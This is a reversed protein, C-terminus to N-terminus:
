PHQIKIEELWKELSEKDKSAKQIKVWKDNEYYTYIAAWYKYGSNNTQLSIGGNRKKNRCNESCTVWRLNNLNNNHKNRDIHDIHIKNEPDDNPIFHLALLRHLLFSKQKKNLHLRVNYYRKDGSLNHKLLTNNKCKLIDGNRNIKYLGEYGIIDIFENM